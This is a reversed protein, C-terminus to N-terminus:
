NYLFHYWRQKYDESSKRHHLIIGLNIEKEQDTIKLLGSLKTEKVIDETKFTIMGKERMWSENKGGDRLYINGGYFAVSNIAALGTQHVTDIILIDVSKLVAKYTDTDILSDFVHYKDGYTERGYRNFEDVYEKDSKGYGAFIIIRINEEKFKELIKLWKIHNNNAGAHNGILINIKDDTFYRNVLSPDPLPAGSYYPIVFIEKKYGVRRKLDEADPTMLTNIGDLRNYLIRKVLTYIALKIRSKHLTNLGSGWNAWLVRNKKFPLLLNSIFFPQYNGHLIFVSGAKAYHKVFFLFLDKKSKIRIFKLGLESELEQYQQQFKGSFNFIVFLGKSNTRKHFENFARIFKPVHHTTPANFFHYVSSM